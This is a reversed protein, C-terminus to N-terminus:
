RGEIQRQYEEADYWNQASLIKNDAGFEWDEWGRTVIHNNTEFHHGELTWVFIAHNGAWRLMDCRLELDTIEAHVDRVMQAIAARGELPAGHNVSISGNLEYFESVTEGNGTSWAIAYDRALNNLTDRVSGM